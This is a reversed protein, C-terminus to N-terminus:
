SWPSRRASRTSSGSPWCRTDAWSSSTTTCASGSPASCCRGSRSWGPRRRTAPPSSTRAPTSRRPEPLSQLDLKGNALRPLADLAVVAAPVMYQPLRRSVYTRVTRAEVTAPAVYAVLRTGGWEEERAVVVAETVGPAAATVTEVEGLEVRFGRVKVQADSRGLLEVVGDPRYRALDGTDYLM